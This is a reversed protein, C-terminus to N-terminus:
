RSQDLWRVALRQAIPVPRGADEHLGTLLMGAAEILKQTEAAGDANRDAAAV